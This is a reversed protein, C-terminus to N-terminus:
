KQGRGPWPRKQIRWVKPFCNLRMWVSRPARSRARERSGQDQREISRRIAEPCQGSRSALPARYGTEPPELLGAEPSRCANKGAISPIAALLNQGGDQLSRGYEIVM